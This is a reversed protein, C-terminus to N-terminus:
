ANRSGSVAFFTKKSRESQRSVNKDDKKVIGVAPSASRCLAPTKGAAPLFRPFLGSLFGFCRRAFNLCARLRSVEVEHKSITDAKEQQHQRQPLEKEADTKQEQLMRQPIVNPRSSVHSKRNQM